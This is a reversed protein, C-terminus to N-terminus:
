AGQVSAGRHLPRAEGAVTAGCSGGARTAREARIGCGGARADRGNCARVAMFGGHERCRARRKGGRSHCACRSSRGGAGARAADRGNCARAESDSAAERRLPRAVAGARAQPPLADRAGGGGTGARPATRRTLWGGGGRTDPQADRTSHREHGSWEKRFPWSAVGLEVLPSLSLALVSGIGQSCTQTEPPRDV